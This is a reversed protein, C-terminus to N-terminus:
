FCTGLARRHIPIRLWHVLAFKDGRLMSHDLFDGLEKASMRRVNNVAFTYSIGFVVYGIGSAALVLAITGRLKKLLSHPKSEGRIWELLDPLLYGFVFFPILFPASWIPIFLIGIAATSSTSRVVMALFATAVVAFGLGACLLASFWRNM